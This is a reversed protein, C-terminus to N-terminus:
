KLVAPEPMADTVPQTQLTLRLALGPTMRHATIQGQQASILQAVLALGIGTGQTTRTLENGGRYFLEFLKDCQQQSVGPGYDRFELELKDRSHDNRRFTIDLQRRVPDIIGEAAFFKVANETINIVVQAFADQDVLVATEESLPSEIVMNLTFAHKDLLTSTKSRIIDALMTVPVYDPNVQSLGDQNQHNLRTLLLINDILRSLRESESHMFGYYDQRADSSVVTGSRLMEAYMRIATLPTKLEHSVSSVFNMRQEALALQKVSLRYFGYCAGLITLILLLAFVSSYLMTPSMPLSHTTFHLTFNNFPWRLPSSYIFQEHLEAPIETQALRRASSQSRTFLFHVPEPQAAMANYLTNSGSSSNADLTLLVPLNFQSQSLYESVLNLLYPERRVLYGQLKRQAGVKPLRYFIFYGPVDFWLQYLGSEKSLGQSLKSQLAESKALIQYIFKARDYRQQLEPSAKKQESGPKAIDKDSLPEPWIPSNFRGQADFQFYGVLGQIPRTATPRAPDLHSLVSPMQLTADTLPNYVAQYYDFANVPLADTLLRRKFMQRDIQLILNRAQEQYTHLQNQKLQAFGFYLVIGLPLLLCLLFTYAQWRLRQRRQPYSM